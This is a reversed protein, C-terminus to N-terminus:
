KLWCCSDSQLMRNVPASSLRMQTHLCHHGLFLGLGQSHLSYSETGWIRTNPLNGISIQPASYAVTNSLSHLIQLWLSLRYANSHFTSFFYTLTPKKKKKRGSLTNPFTLSFYFFRSLIIETEEFYTLEELILLLQHEQRNREPFTSSLYWNLAYKKGEKM